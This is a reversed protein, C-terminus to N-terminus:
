DLMISSSLVALAGTKVNTYPTCHFSPIERHISSIQRHVEAQRGLQCLGKQQPSQHLAREM